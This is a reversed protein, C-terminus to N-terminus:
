DTDSDSGDYTAVTVKARRAVVKLYSDKRHDFVRKKLLEYVSKTLSPAKATDATEKLDFHAVHDAYDFGIESRPFEEKLTKAIAESTKAEQKAYDADSIVGYKLALMDDPVVSRVYKNRVDVEWYWGLWRGDPQSIRFTVLYLDSSPIPSAVKTPPASSNHLVAVPIAKWGEMEVAGRLTKLSDQAWKDVRAESSLGLIKAGAEALGEVPSQVQSKALAIALEPGRLPRPKLLLYIAGLSGLITLAIMASALLTRVTSYILAGLARQEM